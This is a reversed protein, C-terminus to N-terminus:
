RPLVLRWTTYELTGNPALVWLFRNKAGEYIIPLRGSTNEVALNKGSSYVSHISGQADIYHTAACRANTM